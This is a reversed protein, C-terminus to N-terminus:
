NEPAEPVGETLGFEYDMSYCLHSVLGVDPDWRFVRFAPPAYLPDLDNVDHFELKYSFSSSPTVYAVTGNWRVSSDRHTHGSVIAEINHYNRVVEALEKTGDLGLNDPYPMGTEFPPHHMCIMTPKNPQEHLRDDLWQIREPDLLGRHSGVALTDLVIMRVPGEEITYQIYHDGTNLYTHDSFISRLSVRVDHNGVVLYYPIGISDLVSKSRIYDDANGHHALDGSVIIMDPCPDLSKIKRAARVLEDYLDIKGSPFTIIRGVHPDTVQVVTFLKKM